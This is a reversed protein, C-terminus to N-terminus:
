QATSLHLTRPPGLFLSIQAHTELRPSHAINAGSLDRAHLLNESPVLCMAKTHTEPFFDRKKGPTLGKPVPM